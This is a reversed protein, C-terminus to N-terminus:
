NLKKKQESTGGGYRVRDVTLTSLNFGVDIGNRRVSLVCAANNCYLVNNNNVNYKVLTFIKVLFVYQNLYGFISM